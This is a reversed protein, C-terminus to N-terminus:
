VFMLVGTVATEEALWALSGEVAAWDVSVETLVLDDSVSSVWVYGVISAGM